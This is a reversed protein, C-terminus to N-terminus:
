GGKRKGKAKAKAKEAPPASAATPMVVANEEEISVPAPAKVGLKPREYGVALACTRERETEYRASGNAVMDAATAADVLFFERLLMSQTTGSLNTMMCIVVGSSMQEPTPAELGLPAQWPTELKVAFYETAM